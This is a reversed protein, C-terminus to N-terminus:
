DSLGQGDTILTEAVDVASARVHVWDDELSTKLDISMESSGAEPFATTPVHKMPSRLNRSAAIYRKALYRLVASSASQHRGRRNGMRNAVFSNSPVEGPTAPASSLYSVQRDVHYNLHADEHEMLAPLHAGQTNDRPVVDQELGLNSPALPAPES